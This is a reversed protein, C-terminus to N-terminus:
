EQTGSTPKSAHQKQFRQILAWAAEDCAKPASGGGLNCTVLVAFNKEPSIWTVAYWMTNSGAHNLVRGGWPRRTVIWGLAYGQDQVDAHLKKMTDPSLLRDGGRGGTLQMSVFRAWDGISCHVTGAPGIAAPNDAKRGPKIPKIKGDRLVHGHPQDVGTPKGPAGFGASKMGLPRFVMKRLLKEWSREMVTEAMHGAIAYGANSYIHKTGPEAAPPRTVVGKLLMRRQKVPTGRHRWLRAWLGNASLDGPTGGRHALLLELTVDRYAPDMKDRLEPFVEGITTEWRLKGREVLMGILTATMAKTCSGIHFKDGTLVKEPSGHRRVGVAGLAILEEGRVIAGAMAPIKHKARIPELLEGVDDSVGGAAASGPMLLTATVWSSVLGWRARRAPRIRGRPECCSCNM